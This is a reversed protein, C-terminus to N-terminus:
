PNKGEMLEDMLKESLRKKLDAELALELIESIKREASLDDWSEECQKRLHEMQAAEKERFLRYSDGAHRELLEFLNGIDKLSLVNKLHYLMILREVQGKNYKKKLPRKIVKAKVYNNVMTKTMVKEDKNREFVRLRDELLGLIQDMYLDIGPIEEAFIAEAKLFDMTARKM